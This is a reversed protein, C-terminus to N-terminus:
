IKKAKIKRITKDRHIIIAKLKEKKIMKTSNKKIIAPLREEEFEDKTKKKNNSSKTKGRM